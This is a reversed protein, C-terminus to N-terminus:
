STDDKCFQECTSKHVTFLGMCNNVSISLIVTLPTVLGDLYLYSSAVMECRLVQEGM